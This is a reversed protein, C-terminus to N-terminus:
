VLEKLIRFLIQRKEESSIAEGYEEIASTLDNYLLQGEQSDQTADFQRTTENGSEDSFM